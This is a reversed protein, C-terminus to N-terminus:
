KVEMQNYGNNGYPNLKEKWLEELVQLDETYDYDPDDKPKLVDIIEFSFNNEGYKKYDELLGKNGESGFKLEFKHRNIRSLLNKHSGILIKNNALNKIQYVGMDPPNDKYHRKLESKDM